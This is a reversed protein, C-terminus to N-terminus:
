INKSDIGWFNMSELKNYPYYGFLKKVARSKGGPYRLPTKLQKM